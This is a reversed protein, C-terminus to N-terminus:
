GEGAGLSLAPPPAVAVERRVLGGDRDARHEVALRVPATAVGSAPARAAQHEGRGSDTHARERAEGKEGRVLGPEEVRCMAQALAPRGALARAPTATVQVRGRNATAVRARPARLRVRHM